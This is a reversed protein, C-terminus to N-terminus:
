VARKRQQKHAYMAADAQTLLGEVTFVTSLDVRIVGLSFSLAYGRVSILNHADVSSQLRAQISTLGSETADITLVAFEDGGMRAIVDSDRFTETLIHAFHTLATDGEAHGYTDNVQKLCDMDIYLLCLPHGARRAFKLLGNSMIMFGRRNNLGTLDDTLSLNRSTRQSELEPEKECLKDGVAPTRKRLQGTQLKSPSVPQKLAHHPAKRRSPQNESLANSHRLNRQM